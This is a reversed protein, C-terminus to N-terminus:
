VDSEARIRAMASDPQLPGFRQISRGQQRPGNGIQRPLRKGPKRFRTLNCALLQMISTHKRSVSPLNINRELGSSAEIKWKDTVSVDTISTLEGRDRDALREPTKPPPTAM